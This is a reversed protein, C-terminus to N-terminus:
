APPRIHRILAQQLARGARDPAPRGEIRRMAEIYDPVTRVRLPLKTWSARVAKVAAEYAIRDARGWPLGFAERLRPPLLGATIAGYARLLPGFLLSPPPALLYGAIARAPEGVAITDSRLLRDMSAQFSAWDTPLLDEPIGFLLGFRVLESAYRDRVERPQEGHAIEYALMSTEMLTAYVWYLAEADHANYRDGRAYRGVDERIPGHITDHVGRVRAAAHLVTDLDGFIMGYVNLFTRNFRGLPDARTASHQDIAHAVFPHALQMLAARGAGLFVISERSVRWVISGPGFLGERAGPACAVARAVRAEHEAGKVLM